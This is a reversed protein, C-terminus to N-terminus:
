KPGGAWPKRISFAPYQGGGHASKVTLTCTMSALSSPAKLERQSIIRGDDAQLFYVYFAEPAGDRYEPAVVQPSGNCQSGCRRRSVSPGVPDPGSASRVKEARLVPCLGRARTLQSSEVMEPAGM